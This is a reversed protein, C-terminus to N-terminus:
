HLEHAALNGDKWVVPALRRAQILLPVGQQVRGSAYLAAGRLGVLHPEVRPSRLQQLRFLSEAQDLVSLAGAPDSGETQHRAMALYAFPNLPDVQIARQYLSAARGPQDLSDAELGQLILRLSARRAPDGDNVVDSIRLPKPGLPGLPGLPLHTCGSMLLFLSGVLAWLALGHRWHGRTM